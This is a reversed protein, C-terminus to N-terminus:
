KNPNDIIAKLIEKIHEKTSQSVSSLMVQIKEDINTLKSNKYNLFSFLYNPELGAKEILNCVTAFNPHTKGNEINSLSSQELDVIEAFQEQTLRYLQRHKKIKNGLEKKINILNM